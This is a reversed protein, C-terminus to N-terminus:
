NRVSNASAAASVNNTESGRLASHLILNKGGARFDTSIIEPETKQVERQEIIFPKFAARFCLTYSKHLDGIRRSEM